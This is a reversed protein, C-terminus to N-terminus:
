LMTLNHRVQCSEIPIGDNVSNGKPFSLDLIIRMSGDKKSNTGLSSCRMKQLPPTNFPGATHSRYLEKIIAASVVGANSLASKNNRMPATPSEHQFGIDFWQSFGSVLFSAVDNPYGDLLLSLRSVHIPPFFCYPRQRTFCM